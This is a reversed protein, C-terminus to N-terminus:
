GNSATVVSKLLGEPLKGADVGEKVKAAWTQLLTDRSFELYLRDEETIIDLSLMVAVDALARHYRGGVKQFEALFLADQVKLTKIKETVEGATEAVRAACTTPTDDSYCTAALKESVLMVPPMTSHVDPSGLGHQFAMAVVFPHIATGGGLFSM